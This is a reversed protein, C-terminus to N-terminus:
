GLLARYISRQLPVPLYMSEFTEPRGWRLCKGEDRGSVRELRFGHCHKNNMTTVTIIITTIITITITPITTIPTITITTVIIIITSILVQTLPLRSDSNGVAESRHSGM